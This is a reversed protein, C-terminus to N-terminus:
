HITGPRVPPVWPATAESPALVEASPRRRRFVLRAAAVLAGLRERPVLAFEAGQASLPAPRLAQEALHSDGAQTLNAAHPLLDEDDSLLPCRPCHVAILSVCEV